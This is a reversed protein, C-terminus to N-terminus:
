QRAPPTSPLRISTALPDGHPSRKAHVVVKEGATADSVAVPVKGRRVETETTVAFRRTEGEPTRVVVLKASIEVVTGRADLGDGHAWAAAASALAIMAILPRIWNM